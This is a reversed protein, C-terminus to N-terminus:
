KLAGDAVDAAVVGGVTWAAAKWPLLYHHGAAAHVGEHTFCGTAVGYFVGDALWDVGADSICQSVAGLEEFGIAEQDFPLRYVLTEVGDSINQRVKKPVSLIAKPDQFTVTKVTGEIVSGIARFPAVIVNRINKKVNAGDAFAPLSLFLSLVVILALFKKM